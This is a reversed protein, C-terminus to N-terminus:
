DKGHAKVEVKYGEDIMYWATIFIMVAVIARIWIWDIPMLEWALFSIFLYIGVFISGIFGGVLAFAKAAHVAIKFILNQM